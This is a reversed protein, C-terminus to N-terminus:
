LLLSYIHFVIFTCFFLTIVILTLLIVGQYECNLGNNIYPRIYNNYPFSHPCLM